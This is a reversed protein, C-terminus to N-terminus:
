WHWRLTFLEFKRIHETEWSVLQRRDPLITFHEPGLKTTKSRSRETLTAETCHRNKHFIVEVRLRKTPRRIETQIWEESQMYCDKVRQEVNFQEVDGESKTHRLSILINWRDGERYKDVVVGPSCKYNSLVDGDGWVYDEFAIINNQLFRVKQKKQFLADKGKVDKLEVRVEYDLIEYPGSPARCVLRRLFLSLDVGLTLWDLSILPLVRRILSPLSSSQKESTSM